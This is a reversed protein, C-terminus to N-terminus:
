AGSVMPSYKYKKVNEINNYFVITKLNEDIM